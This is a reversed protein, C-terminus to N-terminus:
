EVPLLVTVTTGAENSSELELKGGYTRAILEAFMLSIGSGSSGKAKPIPEKFLRPQISEPIGSGTDSFAIRVWHGFRETSLTLTPHASRKMAEAANEVLADIIQKMWDPNVRVTTFPPVHFSHVFRIRRYEERAQLQFTREQLLENILVSEVGEESSLPLTLPESSIDRALRAIRDLHPQCEEIRGNRLLRQLAHVEYGITTANKGIEHGWASNVISLWRQVTRAVIRDQGERRKRERLANEIAVAAQNGFMQLDELDDPTMRYRWRYNVFLVGVTRENVTLRLCVSTVFGEQSVFNSGLFPDDAANETYYYPETLENFVKHLISGPHVESASRRPPMHLGENAPPFQLEETDPDYAYCSVADCALAGHISTAISQLIQPLDATVSSQAITRGAQQSRQLRQLLYAQQQNLTSNVRRAVALAASVQEAFVRCQDIEEDTFAGRTKQRDLSFSGIVQGASVIPVILISQIDLEQLITQVVGLAHTSDAVQPFHLPQQELLLMEEAPIGQVPITTGTAGWSPYEAVVLGEACGAPFIVVASHDVKFFKVAVRCTLAVIENFQSSHEIM